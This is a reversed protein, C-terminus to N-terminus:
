LGALGVLGFQKAFCLFETACRWVLVAMQSLKHRGASTGALNRSVTANQASLVDRNSLLM